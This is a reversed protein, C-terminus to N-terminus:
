SSQPITPKHCQKVWMSVDYYLVIGLSARSHNDVFRSAQAVEQGLKPVLLTSVEILAPIPAWFTLDLWSTHVLWQSTPPQARGRQFIISHFDTPIIVNGVSHFFYFHELGGVLNPIPEHDGTRPKHTIHGVFRPYCIKPHSWSFIPPRPSHISECTLIALVIYLYGVSGNNWIETEWNLNGYPDMSNNREQHWHYQIHRLGDIKLSGIEHTVRWFLGGKPLFLQVAGLDNLDHTTLLCFLPTWKQYGRTIVLMAM